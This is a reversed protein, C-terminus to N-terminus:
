PSLVIWLYVVGGSPDGHLLTELPPIVCGYVFYLCIALYKSHAPEPYPYTAPVQPHPSPSESEM